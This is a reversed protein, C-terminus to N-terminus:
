QQRSHVFKTLISKPQPARKTSKRVKLTGFSLVIHGTVRIQVLSWNIEMYEVTLREVLQAIVPKKSLVACVHRRTHLNVRHSTNGHYGTHHKGHKNTYDGTSRDIEFYHLLKTTHEVRLEWEGGATHMHRLHEKLM